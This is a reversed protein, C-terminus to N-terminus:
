STHEESRLDKGFTSGPGFVHSAGRSKAVDAIQPAVVAALNHDNAANDLQLVKTVGALKAAEAAVSAGDKALVLVEIEGGVKQACAVAKAVGANLKGDAHQAIVLTKSM